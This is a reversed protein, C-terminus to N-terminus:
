SKELLSIIYHAEEIKEFLLAELKSHDEQSSLGFGAANQRVREPRQEWMAELGAKFNALRDRSWTEAGMVSYSFAADNVGGGFASRFWKRSYDTLGYCKRDLKELVGAKVLAKLAKWCSIRNWGLESLDEVRFLPGRVCVFMFLVVTLRTFSTKKHRPDTENLMTKGSQDGARTMM